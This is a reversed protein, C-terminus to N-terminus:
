SNAIKTLKEQLEQEIGRLEEEKTKALKRTANSKSVMRIDWWNEAKEDYDHFYYKKTLAKIQFEM